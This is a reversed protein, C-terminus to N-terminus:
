DTPLRVDRLFGIVVHVQQMTCIRQVSSFVSFKGPNKNIKKIKKKLKQM